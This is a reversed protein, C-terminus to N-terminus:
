YYCKSSKHDNTFLNEGGDMTMDMGEDDRSFLLEKEREELDNIGSEQSYELCSHDSGIHTNEDSDEGSEEESEEGSDEVGYGAGRRPYRYNERDGGNGENHNPEPTINKGSNMLSPMAQEIGKDTMAVGLGKEEERFLDGNNEKRYYM